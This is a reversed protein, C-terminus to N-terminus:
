SLGSKKKREIEYKCIEKDILDYFGKEIVSDISIYCFLTTTKIKNLVENLKVADKETCLAFESQNKIACEDIGRITDIDYRFHDEFEIFDCPELKNLLLIQKFSKTNGIGCFAIFRKNRLNIEMSEDLVSKISDMQIEVRYLPVSKILNEIEPLTRKEGIAKLLIIDARKISSLPERLPGRPLLYGNGFGLETDFILIDINRAFGLHSFADDIVIVDPGFAKELQMVLETKNKGGFVPTEKLKKKLLVVEDGYLAASYFHIDDYLCFNEKIRGGYSRAVVGVSYGRKKLYKAIAIVVPTKGSGGTTLNGVSIVFSEMKKQKIIKLEYLTNKIYVVIAYLYSLLELPSFLIRVFFSENSKFFIKNITLRFNM